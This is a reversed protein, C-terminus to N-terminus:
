LQSQMASGKTLQIMASVMSALNAFEQRVKASLADLNVYQSNNSPRFFVFFFLFKGECNGANTLYFGAACQGCTSNNWGPLCICKGNKLEGNQCKLTEQSRKVKPAKPTLCLGSKQDCGKCSSPCPKCTPGFLGPTCTECSPGTFGKNCACIGSGTCVGSGSCPPNCTSYQYDVITISQSTSPFSIAPATDYIAFLQKTKESSILVAVWIKDSVAISVFHSLSITQKSFSGRLAYFKAQGSYFQNDYLVFGEELAVDFPPAASSLKYGPTSVISTQSTLLNRLALTQVVSTSYQGPLFQVLKNEIQLGM